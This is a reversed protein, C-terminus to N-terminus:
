IRYLHVIHLVCLPVAFLYRDETIQFYGECGLHRKEEGSEYLSLNREFWSHFIDWLTTVNATSPLCAREKRALGVEMQSWMEFKTTHWKLIDWLYNQNQPLFYRYPFCMKRSGKRSEEYLSVSWLSFSWEEKFM